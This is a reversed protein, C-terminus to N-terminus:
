PALGFVSVTKYAPVYVRGNAELPTLFANGSPNSWTGAGATFIPSGLTDANYAELALPSSRRILWVIGTGPAAGNSSVIPTSGGYGSKTTGVPGAKLAPAAGTSLSYSRLVDSDIQVFVTNGNAGQYFAPGGRTGSGSKGIRMAQLAGKDDKRKGGLRTQDLLYLM